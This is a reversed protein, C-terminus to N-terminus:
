PRELAILNRVCKSALGGVPPMRRNCLPSRNERRLAEGDVLPSRVAPMRQCGPIWVVLYKAYPDLIVELSTELILSSSLAKGSRFVEFLIFAIHFSSFED